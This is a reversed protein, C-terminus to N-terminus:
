QAAGRCFRRAAAAVGASYSNLLSIVGAHRAVARRAPNLGVGLLLSCLPSAAFGLALTFTGKLVFGCCISCAVALDNINSPM